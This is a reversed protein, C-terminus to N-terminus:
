ARNRAAPRRHAPRFFLQGRSNAYAIRLFYLRFEKTASRALGASQRRDPSIRRRLVSDPQNLESSASRGVPANCDSRSLDRAFRTSCFVGCYAYGRAKVRRGTERTRVFPHNGDRSTRCILLNCLVRPLARAHTLPLALAPAWPRVQAGAKSTGAYLLKARQYPWQTSAGVLLRFGQESQSTRPNPEACM